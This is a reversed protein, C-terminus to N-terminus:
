KKILKPDLKVSVTAFDKPCNVYSGTKTFRIKLNKKNICLVTYSPDSAGKPYPSTSVGNSQNSPAQVNNGIVLLISVLIISVLGICLLVVIRKNM